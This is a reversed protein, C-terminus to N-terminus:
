RLCEKVKKKFQPAYASILYNDDNDVENEVEGGAEALIIVGAAIDHFKLMSEYYFSCRGSAVYCLSLAASGISRIDSVANLINLYKEMFAPVLEHHRHPPVVLALTHSFDKEDTVSIKEDNLFAGEGVIGTFKENFYPVYVIGFVPTKGEYLAISITYLPFNNMFNVTGDIPDIVWLAESSGKTFGMEESYISDYPFFRMILDRLLTDCKMDTKTVFDNTGKTSVKKRKTSDFLLLNGAVNVAEYIFDYRSKYAENM